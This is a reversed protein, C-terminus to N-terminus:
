WVPSPTSRTSFSILSSSRVCGRSSAATRLREAELARDRADEAAYPYVFALAWLGCHFLAFVLGFLAARGYTFPHRWSGSVGPLAKGVLSFVLGFLVGIVAALSVSMLLM